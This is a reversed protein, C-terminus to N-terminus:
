VHGFSAAEHEKLMGLGLAAVGASLAYKAFDTFIDEAV